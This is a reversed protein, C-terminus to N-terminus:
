ALVREELELEEMAQRVIPETWAKLSRITQALAGLVVILQLAILVLHGPQHVFVDPLALLLVVPIVAAVLYVPALRRQALHQDLVAGLVAATAGTTGRQRDRILRLDYLVTLTSVVVLVVSSTFWGLPDDLFHMQIALVVALVIYLLNHGLGIPWGIFTLSHSIVSAWLFLTLALGSVLYPWFEFRLDRLLPTAAETLPFLVVGVMVSILTFEIAVVVAGLNREAHHRERVGLPRIGTQPRDEVTEM